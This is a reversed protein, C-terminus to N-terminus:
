YESHNLYPNTALMPLTVRPHLSLNLDFNSFGSVHLMLQCLATWKVTSPISAIYLTCTGGIYATPSTQVRPPPPPPPPPHRPVPSTFQSSTNFHHCPTTPQDNEDDYPCPSFHTLFLPYLYPDLCPYPFFPPSIWLYPYLGECCPSLCPFLCPSLCSACFFCSCTCVYM